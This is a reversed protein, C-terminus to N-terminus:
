YSKGFDYLAKFAIPPAETKYRIYLYNSTSNLSVTQVVNQDCLRNLVSATEDAGDYITLGSEGDQCMNATTFFTPISIHIREGKKAEITVHCDIHTVSLYPFKPSAVAHPGYGPPLTTNCPWAATLFICNSSFTTQGFTLCTISIQNETIQYEVFSPLYFCYSFFNCFCISFYESVYWM